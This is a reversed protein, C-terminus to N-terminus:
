DISKVMTKSQIRIRSTNKKPKLGLRWYLQLNEYPLVYKEKGFCNSVLKKLM